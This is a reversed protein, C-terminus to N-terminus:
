HGKKLFEKVLQEDTKGLNHIAAKADRAWNTQPYEKIIQQYISKAEAENMLMTTDDYLNARLFLAAGRNKFSPFGDACRKFLDSAKTYQGISQAIQGAKLLFVPSLSDTQCADAFDVFAKIAQQALSHDIVTAKQVQNNLQNAKHLLTDCAFGTVLASDTLIKQHSSAEHGSGTCSAMIFLFCFFLIVQKM